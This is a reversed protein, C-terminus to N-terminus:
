CCFSWPCRSEVEQANAPFGELGGAALIVGGWSIVFTLAFYALATHRKISSLIGQNM